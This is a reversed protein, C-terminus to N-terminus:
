RGLSLRAIENPHFSARFSNIKQLINKPLHSEQKQIAFYLAKSLGNSFTVHRRVLLKGTIIDAFFISCCYGSIDDEIKKIKADEFIYPVDIWDLNNLKILLFIINNKTFIQFFPESTEIISLNKEDIGKQFIFINARNDDFRMLSTENKLLFEKYLKGTKYQKM